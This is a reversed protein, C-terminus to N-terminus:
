DVPTSISIGLAEWLSSAVVENALAHNSEHCERVVTVLRRDSSFPDKPKLFTHLILPALEGPCRVSCGTSRMHTEGM